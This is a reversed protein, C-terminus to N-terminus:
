LLFIASAFSIMMASTKLFGVAGSQEIGMYTQLAEGDVHWHTGEPCKSFDCTIPPYGDYQDYRSLAGCTANLADPDNSTCPNWEVGPFLESSCTTCTQTCCEISGQRNVDTSVGDM